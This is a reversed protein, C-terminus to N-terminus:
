ESSFGWVLAVFVAIIFGFFFWVNMNGVVFSGFGGLLSLDTSGLASSVFPALALAFMILFFSAIAIIRIFGFGQGKNNM